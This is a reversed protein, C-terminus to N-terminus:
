DFHAWNDNPTVAGVAEDSPFAIDVSDKLAHAHQEPAAMTWPDTLPNPLGAEVPAKTIILTVNSM